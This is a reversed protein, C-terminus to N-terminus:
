GKHLCVTANVDVCREELNLKIGPLSLKRLAQGMEPSLKPLPEESWGGCLFLFLGFIFKLWMTM